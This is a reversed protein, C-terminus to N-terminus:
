RHMDPGQPMQPASLLPGGGPDLLCSLVEDADLEQRLVRAGPPAWCAPDTPGFLAVTSAGAARALHTTGTDNGIWLRVRAALAALAGLGLVPLLRGPARAVEDDVPEDLGPVWLLPHGLADLRRALAPLHPWQKRPSAAGPALVVARPDPALAAVQDLDRPSPRPAPPERDVPIGLALLPAALADAAHQGPPPRAPAELVRPIGLERLVRAVEASCALAADWRAPAPGAGHLWLTETGRVDLLEDVLWRWPAAYRPSACLTTHVGRARLAALVPTTLVFDGLAGGRVVLWREM